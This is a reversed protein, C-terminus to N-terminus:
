VTYPTKKAIEIIKKSVSSPDGMIEIHFVTTKAFSIFLNRYNGEPPHPELMTPIRWSVMQRGFINLITNFGCLLREIHSDVM